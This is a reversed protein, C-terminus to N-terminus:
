PNSASRTGVRTPTFRAAVWRQAPPLVPGWAHPPSGDANRVHARIRPQDGRTHPHVVAGVVRVPVEPRTGVRTPTFRHVRPALPRPQEPGWAHPPSGVNEPFDGQVIQQDGRTHPHVSVSASTPRASARTGVRTPTFRELARATEPKEAPGWAHPPSGSSVVLTFTRAHQDGRTHPHVTTGTVPRAPPRRTEVRTPTFRQAHARHRQRPDPGWAHPPSGARKPAAKAEASQDGRTHPHVARPPHAGRDGGRTGVRTPTFRRPQEQWVRVRAPRWEHPRVAAQGSPRCSSRRTGARTPTFRRSGGPRWRRRGPRWAHPPSGGTSWWAV